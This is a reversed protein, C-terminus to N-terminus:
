PQNWASRAAEAAEAGLQLYLDVDDRFAGAALDELLAGISDLADVQRRYDIGTERREVEAAMTPAFRPDASDSVADSHRLLPEASSSLQPRDAARSAARTAVEAEGRAIRLAGTRALETRILQQTAVDARLEDVANAVKGATEQMRARACGLSSIMCAILLLGRMISRKM